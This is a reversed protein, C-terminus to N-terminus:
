GGKVLHHPHAVPLGRAIAQAIRCCALKAAQLSYFTSTSGNIPSNVTFVERCQTRNHHGHIYIGRHALTYFSELIDTM